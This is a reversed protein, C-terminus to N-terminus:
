PCPDSRRPWESSAFRPQQGTNALTLVGSTASTPWPREPGAAASSRSLPPRRRGPRHRTLGPRRRGTDQMSAAFEEPGQLTAAPDMWMVQWGHGDLDFFSRSCMFGYDELGDAEVGDGALAAQAVAVRGGVVEIRAAEPAQRGAL